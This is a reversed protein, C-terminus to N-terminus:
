TIYNIEDYGIPMQEGKKIANLFADVEEKHGKKGDSKQVTTKGNKVLM